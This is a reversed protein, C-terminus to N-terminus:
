VGDPAQEGVTKKNALCRPRDAIQDLIVNRQDANLEFILIRMPPVRFIIM